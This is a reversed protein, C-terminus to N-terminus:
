IMELIYGMDSKCGMFLCLVFIILTWIKYNEFHKYAYIIPVIGTVIGSFTTILVRLDLFSTSAPISMNVKAPFGMDYSIHLNNFGLLYASIYHGGEHFLCVVYLLANMYIMAIAAEYIVELPFSILKKFYTM